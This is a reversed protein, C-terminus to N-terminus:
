DRDKPDKRSSMTWWVIFILIALALGAEFLLWLVAAITSHHATPTPNFWVSSM